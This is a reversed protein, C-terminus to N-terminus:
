AQIKIVSGVPITLAGATLVAGSTSYSIGDTRVTMYTTTTVPKSDSGTAAISYHYTGEPLGKGAAGLDFTQLGANVAGLSRTGVVKGTDDTITLTATGGAGFNATVTASEPATPPVTVIDGPATVLKGIASLAVSNNVAQVVGDNQTQQATLQQNINQLQEVSSFQALQVAMQQGDQPNLPDQYRLQTTLLKLFEDKGLKGGAGSIVGGSGDSPAAPATPPTYDVGITSM